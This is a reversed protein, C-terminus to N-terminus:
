YLYFACWKVSMNHLNQCISMYLSKVSVNNLAVNMNSIM